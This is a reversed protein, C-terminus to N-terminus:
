KPGIWGNMSGFWTRWNFFARCRLHQKLSPFMKLLPMQKAYPSVTSKRKRKRRNSDHSYGRSHRNRSNTNGGDRTKREASIHLGGEWRTETKQEAREDDGAVQREGKKKGAGIGRGSEHQDEDQDGDDVAETGEVVEEVETSNTTMSQSQFSRLIHQRIYTALTM